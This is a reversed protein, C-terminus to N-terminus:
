EGEEMPAAQQQQQVGAPPLITEGEIFDQIESQDDQVATEGGGQVAAAALCLILLIIALTWTAKELFDATRQVGMVQNGSSFGSALGGGKSEQVLVVTTLLICDIFILIFIFTLM